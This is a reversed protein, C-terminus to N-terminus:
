IYHLVRLRGERAVLIGDFHQGGFVFSLKEGRWREGLLDCGVMGGAESGLAKAQNWGLIVLLVLPCQMPAKLVTFKESEEVEKTIIIFFHDNGERCGMREDEGECNTLPM